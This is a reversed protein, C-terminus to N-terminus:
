RTRPFLAQFAIWAAVALMTFGIWKLDTLEHLAIAIVAIFAAILLQSNRTM